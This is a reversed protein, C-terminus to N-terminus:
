RELEDLRAQLEAAKAEAETARNEARTLTGNTNSKVVSLKEDQKGLMYFTVAATSAIGGVTVILNIIESASEPKFILVLIGGILGVTGLAFFGLTVATKNMNEKM